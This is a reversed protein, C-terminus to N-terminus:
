EIVEARMVLFFMDSGVQSQAAIITKQPQLIIVDKFNVRIESPPVNPEGASFNTSEFDYEVRIKKEELIMSNNKFITRSSYPNLSIANQPPGSEIRRIYETKISECQAMERTFSQTRSSALVEGRTPDSICWLLNMVTVNEKDKESFPKVGSKELADAEVRVLWANIVVSKYDPKEKQVEETKKEEALVVSYMMAVCLIIFIKKM